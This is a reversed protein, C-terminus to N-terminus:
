SSVPVAKERIAAGDRAKLAVGNVEVLGKAPVLCGHRKRGLMYGATEGAKLTAGLVRADTRIPL